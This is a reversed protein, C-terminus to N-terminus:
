IEDREGAGGGNVMENGQSTEVLIEGAKAVRSDSRDCCSRGLLVAQRHHNLGMVRSDRIQGLGDCLVEWPALPIGPNNASSFLM